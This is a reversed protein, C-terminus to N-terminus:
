KALSRMYQLVQTQEQKSLSKGSAPMKGRGDVIVKLMEDDKKAATEKSVINLAKEGFAKTMAPNGKGDAAHCSACLKDYNAKGSGEAAFSIPAYAMVGLGLVIAWATKTLM